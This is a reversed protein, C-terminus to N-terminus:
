AWPLGERSGLDLPELFRRLDKDEKRVVLALAGQGPAPPFTRLPFVQSIRDRLNLRILGAAALLLGDFRGMDMQALREPVNGRIDYPSLDPRLEELRRRRRDSSTGIRAGKPLSDLTLPGRTVLCEWPALPPTVAAVYLGGSLQSSLDKASHVALDIRGQMLAEDLDRTFFDDERVMPIPTTKDRDCPADIFFPRSVDGPSLVKLYDLVENIQSRSLLSSRGGVRIIKQLPAQGKERGHWQLAEMVARKEASAIRCADVGSLPLRAVEALGFARGDGSGVGIGSLDILVLGDGDMREHILARQDEDIDTALVVADADQLFDTLAEPCRPVLGLRGCWHVDGTGARKSFPHLTVGRKLLRGALAEGLRGCGFLLVCRGRLPSLRSELLDLAAASWNKGRAALGEERRIKKQELFFSNFVERLPSNAPLWRAMAERVQGIIDTEGRLPSDLGLAVRLLHHYARVGLKLTLRDRYSELLIGRRNQISRFIDHFVARPMSSLFYCEQRHCTSLLLIGDERAVDRLGDKLSEFVGPPLDSRRAGFLALEPPPGGGNGLVAAIKDRVKKSQACDRGDSHVAVTIGGEVHMAPFIVRSLRGPSVVCSLLNRAEADRAIRLNLAPGSTAAVVLFFGELTSPSYEVREWRVEGREIPGELRKTVGPSVVTVRAGARSLTLAKRAGVRGGGVVLCKVGAMCIGLPLYRRRKADENGRSGSSAKKMKGGVEARPESAKKEVVETSGRQNGTMHSQRYM